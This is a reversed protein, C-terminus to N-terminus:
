LTPFPLDASWANCDLKAVGNSWKRTFVGAESEECVGQSESVRHSEAINTGLRDQCFDVLHTAKTDFRLLRTEQTRVEPLGPQLLYIPNWTADDSEWGDGIWALQPRV